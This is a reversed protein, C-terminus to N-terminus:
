WKIKASASIAAVLDNGYEYTIEDDESEGSTLVGLAGGLRFEINQTPTYAAGASVTWTDSQVGLTTSTGRDWAISAAGSWQDNFRHGLGGSVTWGDRYLLELSTAFGSAVDDPVCNPAAEMCFNVVQLQSWDVWKISGFALWNPAIGSQIKFEVSDPMSQTGTVDSVLGLRPDLPNVFGPVETLDLTGTIDGLDVESNYVLSARFAIEPIEYAAGIRWGVGEGELELRGVGSGPIDGLLPHIDPAAQREKFGDVQQYFVGGLVRFQGQGAQMKYSCTGAFNDSNIKTEINSNAGMWDRGPNSHAGWPQSYDVMCDVSDGISAKFGIRPIAYSETDEVGDTAGGGIGNSGIGNLPNIDVVDDMERQPMVYTVSAESAFRSPDFLLDINYGGRELGGASATGIATLSVCGAGVLTKLLPKNM